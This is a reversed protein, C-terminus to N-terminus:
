HDTLQWMLTNRPVPFSPARGYCLSIFLFFSGGGKMFFFFFAMQMDSVESRMRGRWTTLLTSLMFSSGILISRAPSRLSGARATVVAFYFRGSKQHLNIISILGLVWVQLNSHCSWSSVFHRRCQKNENIARRHEGLDVTRQARKNLSQLVTSLVILSARISM